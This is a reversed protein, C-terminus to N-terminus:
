YKLELNFGFILKLTIMNLGYNKHNVGCKLKVWPKWIKSLTLSKDKSRKRRIKTKM